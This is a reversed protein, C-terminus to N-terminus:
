SPGWVKCDEAQDIRAALEGYTELLLSSDPHSEWDTERARRSALPVDFGVYDNLAARVPPEYLSEYRITMFGFGQPRYWADFLRSLQLTDSGIVSDNSVFGDSGLHDHHDRGWKNIRRHVSLAINMPNGFMFILRVNEPLSDPPYHHTKYVTGAPGTLETGLDNVFQNHPRFGHQVFARQVLTTGCRGLGAVVVSQSRARVTM